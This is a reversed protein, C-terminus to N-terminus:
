LKAKQSCKPHRGQLLMIYSSNELTKYLKMM